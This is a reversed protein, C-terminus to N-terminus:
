HTLCRVFTWSVLLTFKGHERSVQRSFSIKLAKRWAAFTQPNKAYMMIGGCKDFIYIVSCSTGTPTMVTKATQEPDNIVRVCVTADKLHVTTMYTFQDSSFKSTLLVRDRLLWAHTLTHIDLQGCINASNHRSTSFQIAAATTQRNGVTICAFEGEAMLEQERSLFAEPLGITSAQIIALRQIEHIKDFRIVIVNTVIMLYLSYLVYLPAISQDLGQLQELCSNIARLDRESSLMM